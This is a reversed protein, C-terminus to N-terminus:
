VYNMEWHFNGFLKLFSKEQIIYWQIQWRTINIESNYIDSFNM